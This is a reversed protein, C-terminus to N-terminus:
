KSGGKLRRKVAAVLAANLAGAAAGIAAGTIVDDRTVGATKDLAAYIAAGLIAGVILAAARIILAHQPGKPDVGYIKLAPKTVEIIGWAIVACLGFTELKEPETLFDIM